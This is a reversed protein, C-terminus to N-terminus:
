RPAAGTRRHHRRRTAAVVAAAEVAAGVASLARAAEALTSGTTVLDDLLVVHRGEALARGAPAVELAGALNTWRASRSLGAQDAARRGPRLVPLLAVARGQVRLERAAVRATRLMADHGRGRVAARQSPVPVLVPERGRTATPDVGSADLAAAVSRALAVGLPRALALRGDEKHALLVARAVGDYPAVSWPPPLGQPAPDPWTLAAPGGLAQRCVPCLLVDETGCGACGRDVVLGAVAAM